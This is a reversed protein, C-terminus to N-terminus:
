FTVGIPSVQGNQAASLIPLAINTLILSEFNIGLTEKMHKQLIAHFREMDDVSMETDRDTKLRFLM